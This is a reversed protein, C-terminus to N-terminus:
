HNNIVTSLITGLTALLNAGIVNWVRTTELDNAKVSIFLVLNQFLQCESQDSDHGAAAWPSEQHDQQYWVSYLCHLILYM